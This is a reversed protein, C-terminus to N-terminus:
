PPYAEPARICTDIDVIQDLILAGILVGTNVLSQNNDHVLNLRAVHNRVTWGSFHALQGQSTIRDHGSAKPRVVKLVRDKDTFPDHLFIDIRRDM